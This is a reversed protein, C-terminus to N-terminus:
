GGLRRQDITFTEYLVVGRPAVTERIAEFLSRQLYRTVIALDFARAPLAAAALDTCWARVTLGELAARETALRLADFNSDVGFVRWGTRALALAHRGRGMAVDLARRRPPSQALLAAAADVVFTSPPDAAFRDTM